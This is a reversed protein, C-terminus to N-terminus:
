RSMSQELSSVKEEAKSLLDLASTRISDSSFGCFQAVQLLFNVDLQIQM